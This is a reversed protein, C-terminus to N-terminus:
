GRYTKRNLFYEDEFFLFKFHESFHPNPNGDHTVLREVFPKLVRGMYMTCYKAGHEILQNHEM